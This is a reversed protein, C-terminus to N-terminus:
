LRKISAAASVVNAISCQIQVGITVGSGFANAGGLIAVINAPYTYVAPAALSTSAQWVITHNTAAPDQYFFQFLVTVNTSGTIRFSGVVEVNRTQPWFLSAITTLTTGTILQDVTVAQDTRSQSTALFDSDQETLAASAAVASLRLPNVSFSNTVANQSHMVKNRKMLINRSHSGDPDTLQYGYFGALQDVVVNNEEVTITDLRVGSLGGYDLGIARGNSATGCDIITNRRVEFNTVQKNLYVGSRPCTQIMNDEIRTPPQLTTVASVQSVNIGDLATNHIFNRAYRSPAPAGTNYPQIDEVGHNACNYVENGQFDVIGSVSHGDGNTDHIFSDRTTVHGANGSGYIEEGRFNRITCREIRTYDFAQNNNLWIGKQTLDWGDGTSTNAPFSNNGTYADTGDLTIDRITVGSQTGGTGAIFIGGGRWVKNDGTIGWAADNRVGIGGNGAGGTAGQPSYVTITTGGGPVGQLTINSSDIYVGHYAANAQQASTTPLLAPVQSPAVQYNGPGLQILAGGLLGGLVIATRLTATDNVGNPLPMFIQATLWDAMGDPRIGLVSGPNGAPADPIFLRRAVATM